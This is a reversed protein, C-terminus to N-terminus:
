ASTGGASCGCSSENKEAGGRVGRAVQFYTDLDVQGGSWGFRPPVNGVLCTLDLMQDYFSFDNSPILGIGAQQQVLWHRRRLEQAVRDLEGRTLQKQWYAEVAKKLERKEGIRPFGLTHTQAVPGKM